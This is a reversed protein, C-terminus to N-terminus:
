LPNADHTVQAMKRFVRRWATIGVPFVSTFQTSFTHGRRDDKRGRHM